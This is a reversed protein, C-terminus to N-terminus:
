YGRRKKANKADLARRAHAGKPYPCAGSRLASGEPVAYPPENGLKKL